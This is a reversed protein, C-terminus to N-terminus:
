PVTTSWASTDGSEFGDSFLSVLTVCNTCVLVFDQDTADGSLPVGDGNIATADVTITVMAGPTQVFVNELNNLTDASGGTTSWGAAFVNGLYTSGGTEVTLDLDNVLAPNAGVAGPADSWALTVQVPQGPDDVPFSVQYQDATADFTVTQDLYFAQTAPQIVNSINVRGWGETNRWRDAAAMDVANNVLLAKSLAPSPDLGTRNRWWETILIVAGAVHPSAMSTGSCFSYLNNTGPVIASTCSGGGDARASTITSGPAAITPIQRGDVAPGRSSTGSIADINGQRFNLSNAVVILNKAEKPATLGSGGSNGASFVLTYPEATAGTDFDGDRVMFDHTRESAQYGHQTGEGSTWSNNAGVAGGLLGQKSLEQWGGAPPWSQLTPCIPNQAFISAGPAMGLGYLFGDGDAFGATADGMAIGAVHTGHGSSTADGPNAPSCGPYNRGGVIKGALDPHDYDVGSDTVSWIVGTGDVGLTALHALYGTVPVNGPHNGAMIQDSMEDDLIPRPSQHGLWLVTDLGAVDAFRAADLEVIANWFARDPQSPFVNHITGGLSRLTDLTTQREGDDYFMVDVNAVRGTRSALAPALKYAPHFLGRWRVFELGEVAPARTADLWVLYADHPYYQLPRAGASALADLWGQRVPGDFQVLHLQGGGLVARAGTALEPEGDIVPDFTHNPVVINQPRPQALTPVAAVLVALALLTTRTM